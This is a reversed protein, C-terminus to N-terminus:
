SPRREGPKFEFVRVHLPQYAAPTFALADGPPLYSLFDQESPSLSLAASLSEKDQGYLVAHVIKTSTNILVNPDIKSASQEAILLGQGLGRCEAIMRTLLGAVERGASVLREDGGAAQAPVIRHAEDLVAFAPPLSRPGGEMFASLRHEYLLSFIMALAANTEDQDLWSGFELLTPKAFLDDIIRGRPDDFPTLMLGLASRRLNAWRRQFHEIADRAWESAPGGGPTDLLEMSIELFEEFTPALSTNARLDAGTKQIFDAMTLPTPSVRRQELMRWYAHKVMSLLLEYAVANTPFLMSLTKALVVSHSYLSINPPPIFPNFQLWRQRFDFVREGFGLEEMLPEFDRKVPDIVLMSRGHWHLEAALTMLTNTKGSGSAGTVFVHRQLDDLPLQVSRGLDSRGLAVTPRSSAAVFPEQVPSPVYHPIGSLADRFTFPPMLLEVVEDPLFLEGYRWAPHDSVPDVSEDVDLAELDLAAVSAGSAGPGVLEGRADFAGGAVASGGGKPSWAPTSVETDRLQTELCTPVREFAAPDFDRLFGEVLLPSAGAFAIEVSYVVHESFVARLIPTNADIEEASLKDANTGLYYQLCLLAYDTDADDFRHRRAAIRVAGGSRMLGALTNRWCATQAPIDLSAPLPALYADGPTLRDRVVAGVMQVIPNLIVQTVTSQGVINPDLNQYRPAGPPILKLRSTTTKDLAGVPVLHVRRRVTATTAPRVAPPDAAELRLYRRSGQLYHPLDGADGALEYGVQVSAPAGDPGAVARLHMTVVDNGNLLFHLFARYEQLVERRMEEEAGPAKVVFHPVQQLAFYTM